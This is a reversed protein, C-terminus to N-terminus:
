NKADHGKKDRERAERAARASDNKAILDRYKAQQDADLRSTIEARIHTRLSDFQPEVTEWILRMAEQRRQLIADVSERQAPTLTLEEQLREAYSRRRGHDHDGRDGAWAAAVATGVVAGVAFTAFLLTIALWKSRNFM